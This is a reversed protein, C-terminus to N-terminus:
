ESTPAHAPCCVAERIPEDARLQRTGRSTEIGTLTVEVTRVEVKTFSLRRWGAAYGKSILSQKAEAPTDFIEDDVLETECGEVDCSARGRFKRIQTIEISM